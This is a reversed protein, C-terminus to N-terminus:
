PKGELENRVSRAIIAQKKNGAKAARVCSPSRKRNHKLMRTSRDDSWRGGLPVALVALSVPLALALLHLHIELFAGAACGMMFGGVCLATMGARRRARALEDPEGKERALDGLDIALLTINTTLVATAPSGQLTLRVLANQTAMAAVGLMGALVAVAGEPDSFPGFGVGLGLFGALFTAHLILLARRSERVDHASGFALTVTGLVTVFVPVALLPGLRSFGGIVYHAALVVLNGTIHATFLGGLALFGIVDVSGATTSLIAPLVWNGDVVGLRQKVLPPNQM